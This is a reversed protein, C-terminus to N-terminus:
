EEWKQQEYQPNDCTMNYFHGNRDPLSIEIFKNYDSRDYKAYLEVRYKEIGMTVLINFITTLEEDPYYSECQIWLGHGCSCTTNIGQNRLNRVIERIPKEINQTYWSNNYLWKSDLNM